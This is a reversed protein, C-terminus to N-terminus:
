HRVDQDDPDVISGLRGTNRGVRAVHGLVEGCAPMPDGDEGAERM